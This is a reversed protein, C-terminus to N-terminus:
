FPQGHPSSEQSEESSIEALGGITPVICKKASTIAKKAGAATKSCSGGGSAKSGSSGSVNKPGSAELTIRATVTSAIARPITNKSLEASKASAIDVDLSKKFGGKVQAVTVKATEMRKKEPAVIVNATEARKKEPVVAVKVTGARKKEPVKLCKALVKEAADAKRKKLAETSVPVPRPGCAVGTLKQV